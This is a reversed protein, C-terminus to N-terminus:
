DDVCCSGDGNHTVWHRGCKPCYRDSAKPTLPKMGWFKRHLNKIAMPIKRTWQLATGRVIDHVKMKELNYNMEWGNEPLMGAFDLVPVAVEDGVRSWVTGTDLDLAYQIRRGRSM